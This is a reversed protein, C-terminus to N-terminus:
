SGYPRVEKAERLAKAWWALQDLMAKLATAPAEPDRHAGSADFHSGAHTFSVTDRVTVAHLEAFVTRLHEVARLGGSIGGYSVFGVPKAQWEAHHWDIVNKLSAPYSHNYEPTLVIFADAAALKPTVKALEARVEPSPDYSLATPLDTAAVDIVDVALDPREGLLSMLWDAVVPGFRGERNSGIVVAVRVPAETPTSVPATVPAATQVATPNM